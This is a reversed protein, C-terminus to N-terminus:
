VIWKSYHNIFRRVEGFQTNFFRCRPSLYDVSCSQRYIEMLHPSIFDHEYMYQVSSRYLEDNEFSMVGNGVLIGKLNIDFTNRNDLIKAALDPIYKGAYSEGTLFLPSNRFNKFKNSLLDKLAAYADTATSTDNNRYYSEKNISYGVGAPSELFLINANRTWAFPNRTLQQGVTYNNGVVYPGIEHLMGLLSSCGPGGNLWIVLPDNPQSPSESYIMVYHLERETNTTNLYGSYMTVNSPMGQM